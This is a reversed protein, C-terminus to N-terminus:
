VNDLKKLHVLLEEESFRMKVVRAPVGAVISYPPVNKNILSGAAIVAGTGITVGKLITCNAGIWVDNEINVPRSSSDTKLSNKIKCGVQYIEHDGCFISVKPGFMVDSGITIMSREGSSFWAHKGIFVDRGLIIYSYSFHSDRPFFISNAGCSFFLSRFILLYYKNLIRDILLLSKAINNRIM